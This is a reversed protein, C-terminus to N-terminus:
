ATVEAKEYAYIAQQQGFQPRRYGKKVQALSVRKLLGKKALRGLRDALTNPMLGLKICAGEEVLQTSTVRRDGILDILDKEAPTM